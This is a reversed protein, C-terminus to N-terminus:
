RRVAYTLVALLLGALLHYVAVPHVPAGAVLAGAAAHLGEVHTEVGTPPAVGWPLDTPTGVVHGEALCALRAIAYGLFVAPVMADAYRSWVHGTARLLVAAAVAGGIAAGLVGKTGGLLDLSMRSAVAPAPVLFQGWLQGGILA